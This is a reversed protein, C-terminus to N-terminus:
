CMLRGFQYKEGPGRVAYSGRGRNESQPHKENCYDLVYQSFEPTDALQQVRLALGEEQMRRLRKMDKSYFAGAIKLSCSQLIPMRSDLVQQFAVFCEREMEDQVFLELHRLKPILPYFEINEELDEYMYPLSQNHYEEPSVILNKLLSSLAISSRPHPSGARSGFFSSGGENHNAQLGEKISLETLIRTKKLLSLLQHEDFIIGHLRLGHISFDNSRRLFDEIVLLLSSGQPSPGHIAMSFSTLSPASIAEIITGCHVTLDLNLDSTSGQTQLTLHSLMPLVFADHRGLSEIDHGSTSGFSRYGPLAIRIEELNSCHRLFSLARHIDPVLRYELTLHKLRIFPFTMNDVPRTLRLGTRIVDFRCTQPCTRGIIDLIDNLSGDGLDAIHIQLDHVQKLQRKFRVLFESVTELLGHLQLRRVRPLHEEMMNIFGSWEQWDFRPMDLQLFISVRQSRILRLNIKELNWPMLPSRPGVYLSVTDWARATALTLDRWHKCVMGLASGASSIKEGELREGGNMTAAFILILSLVEPPIRRISSKLSRIKERKKQFKVLSTQLREIIMIFDAETRATRTLVNDIYTTVDDSSPPRGSRLLDNLGPSLIDSIEVDIDENFDNPYSM